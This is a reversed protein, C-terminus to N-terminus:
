AHVISRVAGSVVIVAPGPLGVLEADALKEKVDLLPPLVKWHLRSPATKAVQALGM